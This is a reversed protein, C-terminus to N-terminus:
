TQSSPEAPSPEDESVDSRANGGVRQIARELDTRFIYRNKPTIVFNRILGRKRRLVLLRHKPRFTSWWHEAWGDGQRKSVADINGLAVRRLTIGFLIVKVHRSGIRYRLRSVLWVFLFTALLLGLAIFVLLKM